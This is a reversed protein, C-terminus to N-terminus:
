HALAVSTHPNVADCSGVVSLYFRRRGRFVFSSKHRGVESQEEARAVEEQLLNQATQLSHKQGRADALVSFCWQHMHLSSSSARSWQLQLVFGSVLFSCCLFDYELDSLPKTAHASSPASVKQGKFIFWFSSIHMKSNIQSVPQKKIRGCIQTEKANEQDVM